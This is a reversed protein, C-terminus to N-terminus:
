FAWKWFATNRETTRLLLDTDIIKDDDVEMLPEFDDDIKLEAMKDCPDKVAQTTMRSLLFPETFFLLTPAQWLWCWTEHFMTNVCASQDVEGYHCAPLERLWKSFPQPLSIILHKEFLLFLKLRRHSTKPSPCDMKSSPVYMQFIDERINWCGGSIAQPVVMKIGLHRRRFHRWGLSAAAKEIGMSTSTSSPPGEAEPRWRLHGWQRFPFSPILDDLITAPLPLAAM